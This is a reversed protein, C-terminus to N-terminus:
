ALGTRRHHRLSMGLVDMQGSYKTLFFDSICLGRGEKQRPFTFRLTEPRFRTARSGAKPCTTSSSTTAKARRASIAM